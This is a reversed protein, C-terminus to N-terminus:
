HSTVLAAGIREGLLRFPEADDSQTLLILAVSAAWARARIWTADDYRRETAARFATRGSADFAMWAIALDNAPDGASVDGFDILGAIRDNALVINGPHLDGHIMVRESSPDVALGADWLARLSSSRADGAADLEALRAQTTSDREALPVGRIPNHPFAAPAPVHMALLIGALQRAWSRNRAASTDLASVGSIWPVVSWPWPFEHTPMGHVLPLPTRVRLARLLPDIM